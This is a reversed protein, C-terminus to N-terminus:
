ESASTSTSPMYCIFAQDHPLASDHAPYCAFKAKLIEDPAVKQQGDFTGVFPASDRHVVVSGASQSSSQSHSHGGFLQTLSSMGQASAQATLMLLCVAVAITTALFFKLKDNRMKLESKRTM